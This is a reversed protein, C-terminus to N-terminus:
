SWRHTRFCILYLLRQFSSSGNDAVHRTKWEKLNIDCEKKLEDSLDEIFINFLAPSIISGQAVGKNARIVQKGVRIRYRAYLCKLYELVDKEFIAKEELKRFLAEHPISNYANSFDIFLGFCHRKMKFRTTIRDLARYLNVNIGM